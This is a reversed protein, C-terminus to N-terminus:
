DITQVWELTQFNKICGNPRPSPGVRCSQFLNFSLENACNSCLVYQMHMFLRNQLTFIHGMM